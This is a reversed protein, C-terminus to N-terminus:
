SSHNREYTSRNNGYNSETPRFTESKRILVIRGAEIKLELSGYSKEQEPADLMQKLETM